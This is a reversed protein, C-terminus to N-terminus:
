QFVIMIITTDDVLAGGEERRVAEVLAKVAIAPNAVFKAAISLAQENGMADWVGDTGVLLVKDQPLLVHSTVMPDAIVGISRGCGDGYSRSMALGPKELAASEWVRANGCSQGTKPDKSCSVVGGCIEIREREQVITPKCDETLAIAQWQNGSCRGVVARSDGVNACHVTRNVVDLIVSVGTSGSYDVDHGLATFIDSDVKKAADAFVKEPHKCPDQAHLATYQQFRTSCIKSVEHGFRGHGDYVGFFLPPISEDAGAPLTCATCSDQNIWGPQDKANSTYAIKVGCKSQRDESLTTWEACRVSLEALDVRPGYTATTGGYGGPPTGSM